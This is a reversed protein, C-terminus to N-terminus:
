IVAWLLIFLSLSTSSDEFSHLFMWSILLWIFGLMVGKILPTKELRKFLYTIFSLTFLIYFIWGAWWYEQFIQIHWNEPVNEKDWESFRISAPWSTWPWTWFPFNIVDKIAQTTRVLHQSSSEIRLVKDKILNSQIAFVGIIIWIIWISFIYKFIDKFSLKYKLIFYLITILFTSIWASRSFTLVLSIITLILLGLLLKNARKQKFRSLIVSYLVILYFSFQNPWAFTSALRSMCNKGVCHYMAIPKEPNFSSINDSYGFNLLFDKPLFFYTILWYILTISASILFVKFLFQKKKQSLNLCRVIYFLIIFSFDYRLGYVAQVPNKTIFFASLLAIFFLIFFYYDFKLFQITIKKKKIWTFIVTTWLILMIIEKWSAILLSTRPLFNVNSELFIHSFYTVLFAHFPLMFILLALLTFQIKKM